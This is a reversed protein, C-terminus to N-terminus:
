VDQILSFSGIAEAKALVQVGEGELRCEAAKKGVRCMVKQPFIGHGEL